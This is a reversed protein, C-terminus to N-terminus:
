ALKPRLSILTALAKQYSSEDPQTGKLALIPAQIDRKPKCAIRDLVLDVVNPKNCILAMDCGANLARNVREVPDALVAAGEMSLDDSFIVGKFGIENRLVTRLWHRSYTPLESDVSPFLVHATMVGNLLNNLARYPALDNGDVDTWPREDCPLCVHSDELVGGHGPFHKGVAKMGGKNMGEVFARALTSVVAADHHFARDGIVDSSSHALDLVPAFSFDIGVERVELAMVYGAWHSAEIGARQDRDYLEGYTKAPPLITFHQKFRQVRGGEQDVATLLSPARVQKIDKVLDKLQEISEYNRAFLIVGGVAAHALKDREEPLLETGIIDIFLPGLPLSATM